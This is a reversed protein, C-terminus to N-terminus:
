KDKFINLSESINKIEEESLGIETPTQEALQQNTQLILNTVQEFRLDLADVEVNARFSMNAPCNQIIQTFLNLQKLFEDKSIKMGFYQIMAQTKSM